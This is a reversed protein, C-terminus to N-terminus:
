YGCILFVNTHIGSFIIEYYHEIKVYLFHSIFFRIYIVKAGAPGVRSHLFGHRLGDARPPLTRHPEPELSRRAAHTAFGKLKVEVIASCLVNVVGPGQAM